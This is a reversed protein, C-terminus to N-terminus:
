GSIADSGTERNRMAPVDQSVDFAFCRHSADRQNENECDGPCRERNRLLFESVNFEDFAQGIQFM